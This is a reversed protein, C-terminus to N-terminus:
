LMNYIFIVCLLIMEVNNDNYKVLMKFNSHGLYILQNIGSTHNKTHSFSQDLGGTPNFSSFSNGWGGRPVLM